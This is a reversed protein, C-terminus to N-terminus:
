LAHGRTYMFFREVVSSDPRGSLSSSLFRFRRFRPAASVVPPDEAGSEPYYGNYRKTSSCCTEEM